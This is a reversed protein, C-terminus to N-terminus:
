GLCRRLTRRLNASPHSLIAKEHLWIAKTQSWKNICKDTWLFLGRDSCGLLQGAIGAAVKNARAAWHYHLYGASAVARVKSQRPSRRTSKILSRGDLM